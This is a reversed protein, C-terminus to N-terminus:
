GPLVAVVRRHTRVIGDFIMGIFMLNHCITTWREAHGGQLTRARLSRTSRATVSENQILIAPQPQISVSIGGFESLVEVWGQEALIRSRFFSKHEIGIQQGAEGLVPSRVALIGTHEM